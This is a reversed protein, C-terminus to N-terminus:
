RYFPDYRKNIQSTWCYSVGGADNICFNPTCALLGKPRRKESHCGISSYNCKMEVRLRM